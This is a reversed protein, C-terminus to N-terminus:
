SDGLMAVVVLCAILVALAVAPTFGLALLLSLTYYV